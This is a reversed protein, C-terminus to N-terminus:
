IVEGFLWGAFVSLVMITLIYAPAQKKGMVKFLVIMSPLSLANGTLFLTLAPGRGMGLGMLKQIIPVETLTAFYMFAGFTSAIVNALLSNQGVLSTVVEQPVVVEIIGAVFVGVFLYPLIKKTLDWTETLWALNHEKQFKFFVIGLLVAIIAIILIAKFLPDISLGFLVLIALQLLFFLLILTNSYEVDSGLGTAFAGNANNRDHEKFLFAMFLGAVVSIVMAAILRSIAFDWGLVSGTLLIATINIAPGTFLFAVAPGIGAGRKYIGTFLPLITCSCVALIGGSVSAIPYAIYKKTTPGLLQLVAEKKVYVAITGAIFFAPVLCTLVHLRAYEHLLSLGASISALVIPADIPAFYFIAFAVALLAFKMWEKM